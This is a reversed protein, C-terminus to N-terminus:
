LQSMLSYLKTDSKLTEILKNRFLNVDDVSISPQSILKVFDTKIPNLASNNNNEFFHILGSINPFDTMKINTADKKAPIFSDNNLVSANNEIFKKRYIAHFSVYDLTRVFPTKMMRELESRLYPDTVDSYTIFFNNGDQKSLFYKGAFGLNYVTTYRSIYNLQTANTSIDDFYHRRASESLLNNDRYSYFTIMDPHQAAMNDNDGSLLYQREFQNLSEKYAYQETTLGNSKVFFVIVTILLVLVVTTSFIIFLRHLFALSLAFLLSVMLLVSSLMVINKFKLEFNTYGFTDVLLYTLVNDLGASCSLIIISLMAAVLLYDKIKLPETTTVNNSNTTTM